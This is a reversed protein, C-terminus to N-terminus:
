FQETFLSIWLPLSVSPNFSIYYPKDWTSPLYQHNIVKPIYFTCAKLLPGLVCLQNDWCPFAMDDAVVANILEAQCHPAVRGENGTSKGTTVMVNFCNLMCSSHGGVLSPSLHCLLVGEGVCVCVCVAEGLDLEESWERPVKGAWQLPFFCPHWKSIMSGGAWWIASAPLRSCPWDAWHFKIPSTAMRPSYVDVSLSILLTKKM